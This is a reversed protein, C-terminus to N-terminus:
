EIKVESLKTVRVFVSCELTDPFDGEVIIQGITINIIYAGSSNRCSTTIKIVKPVLIFQKPIVVIPRNIGIVCQPIGIAQCIIKILDCCDKGFPAPRYYYLSDDRDDESGDVPVKRRRHPAWKACKREYDGFGTDMCQCKTNGNPCIENRYMIRSRQQQNRLNDWTRELISVTPTNLAWEGDM